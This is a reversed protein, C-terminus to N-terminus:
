SHLASSRSASLVALAFTRLCFLSISGEVGRLPGVGGGELCLSALTLEETVLMHNFRKPRLAQIRARANSPILFVFSALQPSLFPFFTAFPFASLFPFLSFLSHLPLHPCHPSPPPAPLPLLSSSAGLLVGLRLVSHYWGAWVVWLEVLLGPAGLKGVM